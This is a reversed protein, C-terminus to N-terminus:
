DLLAAECAEVIQKNDFNIAQWRKRTLLLTEIARSDKSNKLACVASYVEGYIDRREATGM